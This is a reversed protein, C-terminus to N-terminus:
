CQGSRHINVGCRGVGKSGQLSEAKAGKWTPIALSSVVAFNDCVVAGLGRPVKKKETQKGHLSPWASNYARGFLTADSEVSRIGTPINIEGNSV